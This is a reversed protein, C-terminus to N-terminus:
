RRACVRSVFWLAGLGTSLLFFSSGAEPASTFGGGGGGGIRAIGALTMTRGQADVSVINLGGTSDFHSHSPSSVDTDTLGLSAGFATVSYPPSASTSSAATVPIWGFYGGAPALNAGESGEAAAFIGGGANFFAAIEATHANLNDLEAQRLTGGFTSAVGIASFNSPTVTAWFASSLDDADAFVYRGEPAAGAEGVARYGINRLGDLGFRHGGPMGWRAPDSEIWLVPLAGPNSAVSGGNRAYNLGIRLLNEAGPEGGQAHFDPDHGTIFIPGANGTSLSLTAPLLAALLLQKIKM